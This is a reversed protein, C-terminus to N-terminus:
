NVVTTSPPLAPAGCGCSDSSIVVGGGCPDSPDCCPDAVVYPQVLMNREPHFRSNWAYRLCQGVRCGGLTALLTGLFLVILTKKMM